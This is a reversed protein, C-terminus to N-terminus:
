LRSFNQSYNALYQSTLTFLDTYRLIGNIRGRENILGRGRIYAGLYKVWNNDQIYAGRIYAGEFIPGDFKDLRSFMLNILFTVRGSNNEYM